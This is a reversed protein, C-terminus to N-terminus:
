NVNVKLEAYRRGMNKLYYENMKIQGLLWPKTRLLFRRNIPKMEELKIELILADIHDRYYQMRKLYLIARQYAKLKLDIETM